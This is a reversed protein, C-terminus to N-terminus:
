WTFSMGLSATRPLGAYGEWWVQKQDLLNQVTGNVAWRPAVMYEAKVDWLTFAALSRRRRPDAYQSGIIQMTTGLTLGFPFRHQYLGSVLVRPLYPVAGGTESWRTSRLSVSAGINDQETVDAYVDADLSLIRVTGDYVPHWLGAASTDVFVPHNHAQKYNVALKARVGAAPDAEVGMSLNTFFEQNRLRLDSVIYPNSEVMSSLTNRQVYPDFRAFVTMWQMAYWSIGLRPYFRGVGEVDSGRVLYMRLGGLVDVQQAIRYRASLGTQVYYPDWAASPASYFNRWLGLEGKLAVDGLDRDGAFEFGVSTEATRLTDKVTATRVYLGSTFTFLDEVDSNVVADAMFRTVTRERSPTPSAYLRYGDGQLGASAHIRGGAVIGADDPLYFGASLSSHASRYDANTIHGNSSKYGAKLLFDSSQSNRGVWGDFYPTAYSGYGALVKGTMDDNFSGYRGPSPGALEVSSSERMGPGVKRSSPDFVKQEDIATKDFQPLQIAENGTILFEPLDIEPLEGESSAVSDEPLAASRQPPEPKEQALVTVCMAAQVCLAILIGRM